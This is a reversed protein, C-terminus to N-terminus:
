LSTFFLHVIAFTDEWIRKTSSPLPKQAITDITILMVHINSSVHLTLHNLHIIFQLHM